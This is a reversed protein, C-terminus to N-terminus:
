VCNVDPRAKYIACHIPREGYLRYEPNGSVLSSLNGMPLEWFMKM